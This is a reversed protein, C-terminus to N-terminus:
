DVDDGVVSTIRVACGRSGSLNAALVGVAHSAFGSFGSARSRTGRGGKELLLMRVADNEWRCGWGSTGRDRVPTSTTAAAATARNMGAPEAAAWVAVESVDGTFRDLEISIAFPLAWAAAVTTSPSARKSTSVGSTMRISYAGLPLKRSSGVKSTMSRFKLAGAYVVLEDLPQSVM